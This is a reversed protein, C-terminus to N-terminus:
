GRTEVGHVRLRALPQPIPLVPQRTVPASAPCPSREDSGAEDIARPTTFEDLGARRPVQSVAVAVRAEVGAGFVGVAVAGGRM